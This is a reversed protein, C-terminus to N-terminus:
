FDKALDMGKYLHAVQGAYGNFPLTPRKFLEGLRREKKQSWRPHDVDPNVNCYFGYEGPASVNWSTAPQKETFTIRVISKISKFGYKWPVILRIPAGNQNPLPKGYLGTGLLTLPHMAEDLRLGERYPWDLVDRRQGPMQAPDHLTQFAVFKAKKSPEAAKLLKNLEFGQWPVVMSWAEVCRFRYVREESPFKKLISDVDWTKPKGCLGDVKVTWPRTKLSGANKAPDAKDTGFEYFNNYTSVDSFPTQPEGADYASKALAALPRSFLAAGLGLAQLFSRRDLYVNEPTLESASVDGPSWDRRSTM